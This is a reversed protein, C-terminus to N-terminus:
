YKDDAFYIAALQLSLELRRSCDLGPAALLTQFRQEVGGLLQSNSAAEEIKQSRAQVARARIQRAKARLPGQAIATASPLALSAACVALALLIVRKRMTM